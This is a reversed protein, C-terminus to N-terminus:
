PAPKSWDDKVEDCKKTIFDNIDEVLTSQLVNFTNDTGTATWMAGKLLTPASLQGWNIKAKVAKGKEFTVTPAFDIDIKADEKEERAVTCSVHHTKLKLDYKAESMAKVLMAREVDINANCHVPGWPWSVKAKSVMKDLQTKRWSKPISCTINGGAEGPNRFARCLEVKCSKRAEREAKEEPTLEADSLGSVISTKEEALAQGATVWTNLPLVLCFGIATPAIPLLRIAHSSRRTM